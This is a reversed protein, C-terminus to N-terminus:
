EQFDPLTAHPTLPKPQDWPESTAHPPEIFLLPQGTSIAEGESVLIQRVVGNSSSEVMFQMKMAEMVAVHQGSQVVDGAKVAISVLIGQHPSTISVTRKQM